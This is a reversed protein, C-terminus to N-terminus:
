LRIFSGDLRCRNLINGDIWYSYEGIYFYRYKKKYKYLQFTREFGYYRILHKMTQYLPKNQHFIVYEHPATDKYSKANTWKQKKITKLLDKLDIKM